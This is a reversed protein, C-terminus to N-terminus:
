LLSQLLKVQECSQAYHETQKQCVPLLQFRGHRQWTSAFSLFFLIFDSQTWPLKFFFVALSFLMLVCDLFIYRKM